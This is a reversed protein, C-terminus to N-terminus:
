NNCIDARSLLTNTFATSYNSVFRICADDTTWFGEWWTKPYLNILKICKMTIFWIFWWSLPVALSLCSLEFGPGRGGFGVRHNWSDHPYNIMMGNIITINLNVRSIKWNIRARFWNWIWAGSRNFWNIIILHIMELSEKMWLMIFIKQINVELHKLSSQYNGRRWFKICYRSHQKMFISSSLNCECVAHWVKRHEYWGLGSHFKSVSVRSM